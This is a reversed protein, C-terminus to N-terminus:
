NQPQATMWQINYWRARLRGFYWFVDKPKVMIEDGQPTSGDNHKDILCRSSLLYTLLYTLIYTLIYTHLYTRLNLLYFASQVITHNV